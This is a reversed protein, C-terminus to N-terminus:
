QVDVEVIFKLQNIYTLRCILGSTITCGSRKEFRQKPMNTILLFTTLAKECFWRM